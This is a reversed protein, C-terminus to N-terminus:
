NLDSPSSSDKNANSLFIDLAVKLDGDFKMMHGEIKMMHNELNTLRQSMFELRRDM